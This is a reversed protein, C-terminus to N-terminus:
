EGLTSLRAEVDQAMQRTRTVDAAVSAVDRRAAAAHSRARGSAASAQAVEASSQRAADVARAMHDAAARQHELGQMASPEAGAILERHPEIFRLFVDRGAGDDWMARTSITTDSWRRSLTGFRTVADEFTATQNRVFAVADEM